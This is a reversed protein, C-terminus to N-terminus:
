WAPRPEPLIRGRKLHKLRCDGRSTFRSTPASHNVVLLLASAAGAVTLSDCAAPTRTSWGSYKPIPLRQTTTTLRIAQEHARLGAQANLTTCQPPRHPGQMSELMSRRM